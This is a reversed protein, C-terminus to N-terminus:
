RPAQGYHLEPIDLLDLVLRQIDSLDDHFTQVLERSRLLRHRRLPEFLALIKDATPASCKRGEPYLPISGLKRAQMAARAQREILAHVLVAVFYLFLFAEIREATKFNVPAVEAATKLQEHRKEIFSQYKYTQLLELPGMVEVGVNTILPFIGDTAAAERIRDPDPTVVPEYVVTTDRVYPTNKGHRGPGAQRHVYRSHEKIEERLFPGAGTRELIEKAAASVQERTKLERRGAREALGQIQFRAADICDQRVREDRKWKESSRFWVVRYGESSAQPLSAVEFREASDHKRRLPPREWILEWAAPQQALRSRFHADEKRTRPLVTLFHGGAGVIHAMQERTCLKSDAVYLFRASGVIERLTQWTQIHTRDDTVNGDYVNHHVPVAGDGAVTLTWLLQKLDPRHDKNHGHAARLTRRGDARPLTQRYAGSFTITTSDNHARSLDLGFEGVMHVVIRTTLTRLDALFFRDLTRGLRDDNLLNVMRSDMEMQEPVFHGAWEPVGYLPERSLAFNRVLVLAADVPSLALRKDLRGLADEFFRRLGLRRLFPQLIPHGGIQLSELTFGTGPEDQVLPKTSM